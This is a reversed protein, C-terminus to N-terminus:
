ESEGKDAKAAPQGITAIYIFNTGNVRMKTAKVFCESSRKTIEILIKPGIYFQLKQGSYKVKKVERYWGSLGQGKIQMMGPKLTIQLYNAEANESSFVEGAEAATAIAKPLFTRNGPEESFMEDFNKFGKEEAIMRNCSLHIGAPNRFHVWSDTECIETMDLGVIHKISEKRVLFPRSIPSKVSYRCAQFQDCAEIYKPHLRLCTTVFRSEDKGACEKVISVAEIFNDHLPKWDKPTDVTDYPLTVVSDLQIGAQRNKGEILLESEGISVSIQADTLKRLIALLGVSNVSVKWDKPLKSKAKCYIEGNFTHVRGNDFAFKDSQEIIGRKTTGPAVAELIQLFEERNIKVSSM